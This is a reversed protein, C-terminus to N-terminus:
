GAQAGKSAESAAARAETLERELRAKDAQVATLEAMVAQLDSSVGDPVQTPIRSSAEQKAQATLERIESEQAVLTSEVQDLFADVEDMSYGERLRVPTFRKTAVEEATLKKDVM